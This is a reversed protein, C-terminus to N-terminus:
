GLVVVLFSCISVFFDVGVGVDRTNVIVVTYFGPLAFM